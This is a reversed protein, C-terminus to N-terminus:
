LSSACSDIVNSASPVEPALKSLYKSVLLCFVIKIPCDLIKFNYPVNNLTLSFLEQEIYLSFLPSFSLIGPILDNLNFRKYLFPM